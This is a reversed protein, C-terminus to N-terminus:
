LATTTSTWPSTCGSPTPSTSASPCTSSPLKKGSPTWARTTPICAPPAPNQRLAPGARQRPNRRHRPRRRRPLSHTGRVAKPSAPSTTPPSISAAGSNSATPTSRINARQHRRIRQRDDHHPDHNKRRQRRGHDQALRRTRRRDQRLPALAHRHDPYKAKEIHTVPVKYISRPRYDKLLITNPNPSTAPASKKEAEAFTSMPFLSHRTAAVNASKLFSRRNM